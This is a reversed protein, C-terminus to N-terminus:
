PEIGKSSPSNRRLFEEANRRMFDDVIVRDNETVPASRPPEARQIGMKTLLSFIQASAKLDGDLAKILIRQFIAMQRSIRRIKGNERVTIRKNLLKVLEGSPDSTGKPRGHPNGSTGPKFRTARPPRRYGPGSNDTM